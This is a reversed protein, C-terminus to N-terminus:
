QLIAPSAVANSTKQTSHALILLAHIDDKTLCEGDVCIKEPSFYNDYALSVKAGTSILGNGVSLLVANEFDSVPKVVYHKYTSFSFSVDSTTASALTNVKAFNIKSLAIKKYILRASIENEKSTAGMKKILSM